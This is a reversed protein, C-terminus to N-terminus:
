AVPIDKILSVAKPYIVLGAALIAVMATAINRWNKLWYNIHERKAASEIREKSLIKLEKEHNEVITVLNDLRGDTRDHARLLAVVDSQLIKIDNIGAMTQGVAITLDNLQTQMDNM